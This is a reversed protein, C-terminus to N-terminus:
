KYRFLPLTIRKRENDQSSRLVFCVRISVMYFWGFKDYAPIDSGPPPKLNLLPDSYGDFLLEGATKTVYMKSGIGFIFANFGAKTVSDNYRLSYAASQIFVIFKKLRREFM